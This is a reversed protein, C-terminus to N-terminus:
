KVRKTIYKTYAHNAGKPEKGELKFTDSLKKTDVVKKYFKPPLDATTIWGLKEAITVSGWEGNVNKINSDVMRAEIEKWLEAAKTNVDKQLQLFRQFDESEMATALQQELEVVRAVENKITDETDAM